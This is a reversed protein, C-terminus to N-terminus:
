PTNPDSIASKQVQIKPTKEPQLGLCENTYYLSRCFLSCYSANCFWPM